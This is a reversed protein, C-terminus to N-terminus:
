FSSVVFYLYETFQNFAPRLPILDFKPAFPDYILTISGKSGTGKDRIDARIQIVFWMQVQKITDILKIKKKYIRFSLHCDHFISLLFKQVFCRNNQIFIM